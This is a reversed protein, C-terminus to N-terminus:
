SKEDEKNKLKEILKEALTEMPIHGDDNCLDKQEFLARIEKDALPYHRQSWLHVDSRRIAKLEPLVIGTLNPYKSFDMGGLKERLRNDLQQRKKKKFDLWGINEASGYKLCICHIVARGAPLHDWKNCFALLSEILEECREGFEDTPLSLSFMLPEEHRAIRHWIEEQTASGDGIMADAVRSWFEVRRPAEIVHHKGSGNTRLLTPLLSHNIRKLFEDHAEREDGHVLCVIPRTNKALQHQRLGIGLETEQDSRDCLYPLLPRLKSRSITKAAPQDSITESKARLKEVAKRIGKVVDRFAEDTNPWSTVPVRNGPLLQFRSFPTTEWECATLLIPIVITEGADERSIIRPLEIDFCFKSALFNLSVLLFIIGASNLRRNIEDNWEDGAVMERDYWVKIQQERELNSLQSKLQELLVSDKQSYSIFVEIPKDPQAM